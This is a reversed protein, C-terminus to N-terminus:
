RLFRKSLYIVMASPPVIVLYFRTVSFATNRFRTIRICRKWVAGLSYKEVTFKTM